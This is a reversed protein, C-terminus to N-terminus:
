HTLDVDTVDLDPRVRVFRFAHRFRGADLAADASVEAVLTPHVRHISVKEDLGWVGSRIRPPWPHAGDDFPHAYSRVAAAVATSSVRGLPTSRGVIRLVGAADFRGGVITEPAERPGTVAGIVVETTERSKVKVWARRGAEYRGARAKVVLGEVGVTRWDDFWERAVAVDYTVPTLQIPPSWSDAMTELLARREQWPRQRVDRGEVALVDFVLFTAPDVAPDRRRLLASFDLRGERWVVVEGDLVVGAPVQDTVADLVDVFRADLRNGQRSWARARGREDTAVLFRFGDWKPEYACGGAMAGPEPIQESSTALAAVPPLAVGDVSRSRRGQAAFDHEDDPMPM